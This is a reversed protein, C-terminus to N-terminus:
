VITYHMWNHTKSLFKQTQGFCLGKHGLNTLDTIKRFVCVCARVCVCVCFGLFDCCVSIYWAKYVLICSIYLKYVEHCLQQGWRSWRIIAGTSWLKLSTTILLCSVLCAERCHSHLSDPWPEDWNCKIRKWTCVGPLCSVIGMEMYVYHCPFVKRIIAGKHPSDVSWQHIGRM